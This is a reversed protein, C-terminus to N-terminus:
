VGKFNIAYDLAEILQIDKKHVKIDTRFCGGHEAQM